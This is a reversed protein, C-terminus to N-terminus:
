EGTGPGHLVATVPGGVRTYARQMRRLEARRRRENERIAAYVGKVLCYRVAEGLQMECADAYNKLAQFDALALRVDLRMPYRM